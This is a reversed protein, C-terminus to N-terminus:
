PRLLAALAHLDRGQFDVEVETEGQGKRDAWFTRFGLRKAPELDHYPSFSAHLVEGAPLGLRKLGELFVREDPKYAKVQEATLLLDFEVGINKATAQLIDEDTNSFVALKYGMEQLEQLAAQTDDFPEWKAMSSALRFGDRPKWPVELDQFALRLAEAIVDRYRRYGEKGSTLAREHANWAAVVKDLGPPDAKERLIFLISRELGTEWDILTGYCDFSIANPRPEVAM